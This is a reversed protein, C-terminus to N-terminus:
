RRARLHKGEAWRKILAKTLDWQSRTLVEVRPELASVCVRKSHGQILNQQEQQQKKM